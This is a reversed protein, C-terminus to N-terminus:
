DVPRPPPPEPASMDTVIFRAPRVVYDVMKTAAQPTAIRSLGTPAACGICDSKIVAKGTEKDDLEPDGQVPANMPKGHCDAMAAMSESGLMDHSMPMAVAPFALFLTLILALLRKM